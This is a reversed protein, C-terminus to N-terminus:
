MVCSEECDQSVLSSKCRSASHKTAAPINMMLGSPLHNFSSSIIIICHLARYRKMFQYEGIYVSIDLGPEAKGSM